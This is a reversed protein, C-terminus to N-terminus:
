RAVWVLRPGLTRLEDKRREYDPMLAALKAWFARGHDHHLVHVVEHAVVYDVLRLPAQIIRWNFRLLGGSDCSGWRERQDRVRVGALEVGALRAWQGAREDLRASARAVYWEHIAQEIVALREAGALAGAVPVVLWGRELKAPKSEVDEVIRLRHNRGLYAFSEGSVLEKTCAPELEAARRLQNVIWAGKAKVIHDLREVAVGRPAIVLVGVVGKTAEVAVGVTRRKPSREIAYDITTRGFQVRSRSNDHESM